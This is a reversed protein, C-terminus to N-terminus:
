RRHREADALAADLQARIVPDPPAGAAASGAGAVAHLLFEVNGVAGTIPSVM